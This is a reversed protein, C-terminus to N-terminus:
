FTLTLPIVLADPPVLASASASPNASPNNQSWIRNRIHHVLLASATGLLAGALVDSPFHAGVYMRSYGVAGAWLYAPVAVYWKPYVLSLSTATAFALSTHGSPFSTSSVHQLCVLDGEYAVWPRPRQVLSKAGMTVGLTLLEAGGLEAANHLRCQRLQPDDASLAGIAVGVAPVPALAFSNSVAVWVKNGVPTRHDQLHKLVTYDFPRPTTDEQPAQAPLPLPPLLLLLILQSLMAVYPVRPRPRSPPRSLPRPFARPPLQKM